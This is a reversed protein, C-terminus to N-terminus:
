SVDGVKSSGKTNKRPPTHGKSTLVTQKSPMNSIHDSWRVTRRLYSSRRRRVQLHGKIFHLMGRAKNAATLVNASSTSASNVIISTDNIQECKQLSKGEVEEFLALRLDPPDGKSLHHLRQNRKAAQTEAAAYPEEDNCEISFYGTAPPKFKPM